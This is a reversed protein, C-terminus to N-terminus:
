HAVFQDLGIRRPRNYAAGPRSSYNLRILM